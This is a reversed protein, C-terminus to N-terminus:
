SSFGMNSCTGRTMLINRVTCPGPAFCSNCLAAARLLRGTDPWNHDACCTEVLPPSLVQIMFSAMFLMPGYHMPDVTTLDFGYPASEVVMSPLKQNCMTMFAFYFGTMIPLQLFIQLPMAWPKIGGKKYLDDVDKRYREQM